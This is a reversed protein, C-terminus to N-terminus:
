EERLDNYLRAVEEAAYWAMVNGIVQADDGKGQYLARALDDVSIPDNRFVGFGQIMELMGVGMDSAQEAAMELLLKRNNKWFKVTETYYIWGSFGGDIGHNAIDPAMAAFSELGGSQRVVARILSAPISSRNIMLAITVKKM